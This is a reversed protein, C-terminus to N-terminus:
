FKQRQLLEKVEKLLIYTARLGVAMESLGEATKEILFLHDKVNLTKAASMRFANQSVVDFLYQAKQTPKGIENM